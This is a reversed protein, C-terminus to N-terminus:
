KRKLRDGLHIFPCRVSWAGTYVNGDDWKYTGNGHPRGEDDMDGIYHAVVDNLVETETRETSSRATEEEPPWESTMELEAGRDGKRRDPGPPPCPESRICPDVWGISDRYQINSQNPLSHKM